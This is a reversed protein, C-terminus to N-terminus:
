KQPESEEDEALPTVMTEHILDAMEGAITTRVGRM